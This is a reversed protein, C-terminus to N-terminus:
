SSGTGAGADIISAIYGGHTIGAKNLHNKKIKTKFEYEHKSIKRFFLGGNHKM